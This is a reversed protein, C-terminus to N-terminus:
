RLALSRTRREDPTSRVRARASDYASLARSTSASSGSLSAFVANSTSVSRTTFRVDQSNLHYMSSLRIGNVGRVGKRAQQLVTLALHGHGKGSKHTGNDMRRVGPLRRPEEGSWDLYHLGPLGRNSFREATRRRAARRRKTREKGRKEKRWVM